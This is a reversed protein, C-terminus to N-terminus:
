QTHAVNMERLMRSEDCSTLMLCHGFINCSHTRHLPLGQVRSPQELLPSLATLGEGIGQSHWFHQLSKRIPHGSRSMLSLLGACHSPISSQSCKAIASTRM